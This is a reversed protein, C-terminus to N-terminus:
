VIGDNQLKEFRSDIKQRFFHKGPLKDTGSGAARVPWILSAPRGAGGCLQSSGVTNGSCPVPDGSKATDMMDMDGM